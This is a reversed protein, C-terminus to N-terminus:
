VADFRARHHTDVVYQVPGLEPPYEMRNGPFLARRVHTVEHVIRTGNPEDIEWLRELFRRRFSGEPLSAVLHQRWTRYVPQEVFRMTGEVHHRRDELVQAQMTILMRQTMRDLHFKVDPRLACEETMMAQAKVKVIDFAVEDFTLTPYRDPM